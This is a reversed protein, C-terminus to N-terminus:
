ATSLSGERWRRWMDRYADEVARSLSRADCLPSNRVRDRLGASIAALHATDNALEIARAVYNERTSAVLEHLGAARLLTEGVRSAHRDGRVTIVPVGMWLAECTTTTGNYPFTDLAIDIRSYQGLHGGRDKVYPLLDLRAAAVGHDAFRAAYAARTAPDAFSPAKLVMRASPVALLIDAWIAITSASVKPLANFSGFTLHGAISIPRPAVDPADPPPQYALFCRPLRYLRETYLADGDGPPDAIADTLRYDMQSLGSTNPYGIYTVQVPAPKSAFIGLRNGATHGALDVLIDIRDSRVLAAAAADTLGVINRWHDAHNQLQATLTDPNKVASYCIVAFASRDHSAILPEAFYAVSHRRFDPSVYGVRLRRDAAPHNQVGSGAVEAKEHLRGYARHRESLAEPSLDPDYNSLFLLNSFSMPRNASLEVTRQFEATAERLRGQHGLAIALNSHANAYDPKLRIATECAAIAESLHGVQILAHGLNSFATADSPDAAVAQRLLGIGEDMEGAMVLVTGLNVSTDNHDPALRLADRLTRIAAGLDGSAQLALGLGNLAQIMAPDLTLAQKFAAIAAAHESLHYLALGLLQFVEAEGAGCDVASRLADAADRWRAQAVRRRGLLFWAQRSQRDRDLLRDILRDAEDNAVDGILLGSLNVAAEAFDPKAALAERYLKIAEAREGLALLTNALNYRAEYRQPELALAKRHCAAAEDFRGLQRLVNGLNMHLMPHQPMLEIARRYALTAEDLQGLDRLTNGLNFHAPALESNLALARRYSEAASTLDGSASQANALNYWVGASGPEKALARRLCDIAEGTRGVTRLAAGLGTLAEFDDPDAALRTRFAAIAQETDKPGAMAIEGSAGPDKRTKLM